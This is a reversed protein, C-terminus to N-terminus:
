ELYNTCISINNTVYLKVKHSEALKTNNSNRKLSTELSSMTM